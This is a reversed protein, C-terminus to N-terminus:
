YTSLREVDLEYGFLEWNTDSRAVLRVAFSKGSAVYDVRNMGPTLNIPPGYQVSGGIEVAVGIRIQINGDVQFRAGRLLKFSELDRIPEKTQRNPVFALDTRELRETKVSGNFTLGADLQALGKFSGDPIFGVPRLNHQQINDVGWQTDDTDWAADDSDWSLNLDQGAVIGRTIWTTEEPLDRFILTDETYNWVLVRNPIESDGSPYCIWNERIGPINLVFSRKWYNPSLEEQLTRGIRGEMTQVVSRGDHVVVRDGTFVCHFEGGRHSFPAVCGTYLAGIDTFVDSFAFVNTGGIYRMAAVSNRKYIYLWDRIPQADVIEGFSPDPVDSQGSDVTADDLAWSTPLTGPAAANSWRVRNPYNTSGDTINLAILYYGFPRMVKCQITSAPWNPLDEAISGPQWAQPVDTGNTMVFRGHLNGGNWLDDRTVTYDVDTNTSDQRTANSHTAGLVTYLKTLSAYLWYSDGGTVANLGWYPDVTPTGYVAESGMAKRVRNDRFQVNRGDSWAGPPLIHAPQDQILGYRGIDPIPMWM